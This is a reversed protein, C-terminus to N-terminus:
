AHDVRYSYYWVVSPCGGCRQVTLSRALKSYTEEFVTFGKVSVDITTSGEAWEGFDKMAGYAGTGHDPGSQGFPVDDDVGSRREFTDGDAEIAEIYLEDYTTGPDLHTVKVEWHKKPVAATQVKVKFTSGQVGKKGKWLWVESKTTEFTQDWTVIAYTGHAEFELNTVRKLIPSFLQWDPDTGDVDKFMAADDTTADTDMMFMRTPGARDSVFLIRKGNPSWVPRTDFADHGDVRFIPDTIPAIYIDFSGAVDSAFALRTGDPSWAPTREEYTNSLLNSVTKAGGPLAIELDPDGATQVFM